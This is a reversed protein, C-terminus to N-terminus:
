RSPSRQWASRTTPKKWALSRAKASTRVLEISYGGVRYTLAACAGVRVGHASMTAIQLSMRLNTKSLLEYYGNSAGWPV